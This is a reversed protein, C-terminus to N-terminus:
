SPSLTGVVSLDRDLLGREALERRWNAPVKRFDLEELPALVFSRDSMRPHPVVLDEEDIVLDDLLLIDVDLTRPGNRVTKVRGAEEELHQTFSLLQRPSLETSLRVVANLYREQGAPGGVPTTEYVQSAELRRDLELLRERARQLHGLRDGMNSGLALYALM